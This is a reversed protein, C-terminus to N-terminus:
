EKICYMKGSVEVGRVAGLGRDSGREELDLVGGNGKLFLLSGLSILQIVCLLNCSYACIRIM